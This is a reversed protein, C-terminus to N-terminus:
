DKFDSSDNKLFDKVDKIIQIILYILGVFLLINLLM